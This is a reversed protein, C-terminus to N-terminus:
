RELGGELFCCCSRCRGLKPQSLFNQRGSFIHSGKLMGCPSMIIICLGHCIVWRTWLPARYSGLLATESISFINSCGHKVSKLNANLSLRKKKLFFFDQDHPYPEDPLHKVYLSPEAPLAHPQYGHPGSSLDWSGCWLEALMAACRHEWCSPPLSFSDWPSLSVRWCVGHLSVLPSVERRHRAGHRAGTCSGVYTFTCQVQVTPYCVCWM